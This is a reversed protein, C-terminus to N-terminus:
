TTENGKMEFRSEFEFRKMPSFPIQPVTLARPALPAHNHGVAAAFIQM